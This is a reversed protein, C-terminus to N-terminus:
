KHAVEVIMYDPPLPLIVETAHRQIAGEIDNWVRDHIVKDYYGIKLFFVHTGNALGRAVCINKTLVAIAGAVFYQWLGEENEYLEDLASQEMTMILENQECDKIEQKWKLVPQKGRKAFVKIRNATLALREVNGVVAIPATTWAIDSIADNKSYQLISELYQPL